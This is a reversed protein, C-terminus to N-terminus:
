ERDDTKNGRKQPHRLADVGSTQHNKIISSAKTKNLFVYCVATNKFSFISVMHLKLM